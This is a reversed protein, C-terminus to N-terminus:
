LQALYDDLLVWLSPTTQYSWIMAQCERLDKQTADAKALKHRAERSYGRTWVNSPAVYLPIGLSAVAVAAAGAIAANFVLWKGLNYQVGSNGM